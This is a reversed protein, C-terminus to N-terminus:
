SPMERWDSTGESFVSESYCGATTLKRLTLFWRVQNEGTVKNMGDQATIFGDKNVRARTRTIRLDYVMLRSIVCFTRTLASKLLVGDYANSQQAYRNLGITVVELGRLPVGM